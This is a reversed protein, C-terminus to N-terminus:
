QNCTLRNFEQKIMRYCECTASELKERDLITIRGRSYQIMGAQQLTGAAVTVSSRRIGIMEAIFEQTLYFENTQIGDQVTLLWRALRQDITHLRNCVAGQAVQVFLAQLYILLREQLSPSHNLETKFLESNFRLASGAIQVIAQYSTIGDGIITPAGVLGEKGILAVEVTSGDEMVSVLSIIAELPFYVHTIRDGPQFLIQKATLSVVELHPILRQYDEPKLAALLQNEVIASSYITMMDDKERDLFARNRSANSRSKPSPVSQSAAAKALEWFLSILLLL